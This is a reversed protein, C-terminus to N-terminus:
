IMVTNISIFTIITLHILFTCKTSDLTFLQKRLELLSLLNKDLSIFHLNILDNRELLIYSYLDFYTFSNAVRQFNFVVPEKFFEDCFCDIFYILQRLHHYSLLAIRM